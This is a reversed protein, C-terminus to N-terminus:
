LKPNLTQKSTSFTGKQSMYTQLTKEVVAVDDKSGIPINEQGLDSRWGM